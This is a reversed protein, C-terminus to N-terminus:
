FDFTPLFSYHIPFSSLSLDMRRFPLFSLIPQFLFKQESQLNILTEHPAYTDSLSRLMLPGEDLFDREKLDETILSSGLFECANSKM